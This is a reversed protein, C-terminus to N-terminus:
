DEYPFRSDDGDAGSRHDLNGFARRNDVAFSQRDSSTKPITMHVDEGGFEELGAGSRRRFEVVFEVQHEVAPSEGSDEIDAGNEVISKGKAASDAAAFKPSRPNEGHAFRNPRDLRNIHAIKEAFVM